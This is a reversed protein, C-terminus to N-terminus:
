CSVVEREIHRGNSKVSTSRRGAGDGLAPENRATKKINSTIRSRDRLDIERKPPLRQRHRVPDFTHAMEEKLVWRASLVYSPELSASTCASGSSVALDKIAMIM